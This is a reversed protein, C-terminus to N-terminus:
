YRCRTLRECVWPIERRNSGSSGTSVRKGRAAGEDVGEPEHVLRFSSPEEDLATVVHDAKSPEFRTHGVNSVSVDVEKAREVSEDVVEDPAIHRIFSTM